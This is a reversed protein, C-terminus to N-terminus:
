REPFEYLLRQEHSVKKWTNVRDGGCTPSGLVYGLSQGIESNGYPLSRHVTLRTVARPVRLAPAGEARM